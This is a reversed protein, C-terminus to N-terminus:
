KAAVQAPETNWGSQATLTTSFQGKKNKPVELFGSELCGEDRKQPAIFIRDVMKVKGLKGFKRTLWSDNRRNIKNIISTRFDDLDENTKGATQDWFLIVINEEADDTFEWSNATGTVLLRKYCSSEQIESKSAFCRGILQWDIRREANLTHVFDENYKVGVSNAWEFFYDKATGTTWRGFKGPIHKTQLNDVATRRQKASLGPFLTRIAKNLENAYKKPHTVNRSQTGFLDRVHKPANNDNVGNTIIDHIVKIADNSSTVKVPAEHNNQEAQYKLREWDGSFQEVYVEITSWRADKPNNKRLKRIAALRHNGDVNEYITTGDPRTGTVEVTIPVRQGIAAISNSLQDAHKSDTGEQRVQSFGSEKEIYDISITKVNASKWGPTNQVFHQYTSDKM